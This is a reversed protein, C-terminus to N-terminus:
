LRSNYSEIAKNAEEAAQTIADEPSLNELYMKSEASELADRVAKYDGIVPGATATNEAGENVEDYAVKFGPIETWRQQLVPNDASSKRVPIFGTAAAWTAQNEPQTLFEAFTWAAAQTAPDSATIYLGSGGPLVGGEDTIGPVPAVDPEVGAYQGTSLVDIITGLTGSGDITMGVKGSGVALLNDIAGPGDAPYTIALGDDVLGKLFAFTEVATENDFVVETARESRGNDNNVFEEGQWALMQELHWSDLKLALGAEFGSDKFKQAMVRLEDFSTPPTDPDLGARTFASRSYLLIPESVAFPLGWQVDDIQYYALPREVFDDTAADAAEICSQMPLVTQTDVMQQLYYEQSQILDPLEGPDTSLTTIFKDHQDNSDNNNLLNIKVKDQSSHFADTLKNLAEENARTMTHWFTLEVPETASELADLPCEPLDDGDGGGSEGDDDGGGCSAAVMTLALVWALGTRRGV